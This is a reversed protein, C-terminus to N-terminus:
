DGISEIEDCYRNVVINSDFECEIKERGARDMRACLVQQGFTKHYRNFITAHKEQAYKKDGCRFARMDTAVFVKM